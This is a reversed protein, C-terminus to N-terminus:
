VDWLLLCLPNMKRLKQHLRRPRRLHPESLLHPQHWLRGADVEVEVLEVLHCVVDRHQQLREEYRRPPVDVLAVQLLPPFEDEDQPQPLPGVQMTSEGTVVVVPRQVDEGQLHEVVEQHAM